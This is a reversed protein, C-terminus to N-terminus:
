VHVDKMLKKQQIREKIRDYGEHEWDVEHEIDFKDSALNVLHMIELYSLGSIKKIRQVMAKESISQPRMMQQRQMKKSLHSKPKITSTILEDGWKDIPQNELLRKKSLLEKESPSIYNDVIDWIQNWMFDGRPDNYRDPYKFTHSDTRIKFDIVYKSAQEMCQQALKVSKDIDKITDEILIADHVPCLIKLGNERCLCIALRLIDAGTSQMPWNQISRYSSGMTNMYWHFRTKVFKNMIGNDTFNTIWEWYEPYNAKHSSMLNKSEAETIGVREAFSRYGQGYNIAHMATKYLERENPHTKKTANEPVAGSVKAFEIFPDGTQYAKIMNKDKSLVAAIAFEQQEFDIYSIAMGEQPKILGRIWVTNAFIFKSSSPYNRSTKSSFPSLMCRNRGDDGIQLDNLRLQGLSYRLEQLPKLQPYVKAMDKMYAQETVPKGTITRRWPIRNKILYRRFREIKFVGNEYVLYDQDVRCILEEMITSWCTRLEELKTVDIPIGRNEMSGVAAMYRGRLLAYPLDIKEKLKIFLSSTMEVDKQCYDLIDNIEEYTYPPGKLIRERMHEKYSSKTAPVDYYLCAGILNRGYPLYKGNTLCRFEVFMDVIYLPIKFKLPIHCGVEASALYAIILTKDDISYEPKTETGDIWHRILENTTPNKAVYCIPHQINGRGSYYEYDIIWINNDFDDWKKQM